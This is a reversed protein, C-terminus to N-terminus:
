AAFSALLSASTEVDAGEPPEPFRALTTELLDRASAADGDGAIVDALSLVCRLEVAVADMSRALSLAEGFDARAGERDGKVLKIKGRANLTYPRFVREQPNFSLAEDAAVLAADLDGTLAIVEALWTLSLTLGVRAGSGGGIGSRLMTLGTTLDGARANLNGVSTRALDSAYSFGNAESLAFLRDVLDRAGGWDGIAWLLLGHFHLAMALDYPNGSSAAHDHAAQIRSRAAAARGSMFAGWSAVGMSISANGPAQRLGPTDMLPGLVAYHSEMGALDGTYFRSQVQANHAFVLRSPNDGDDRVLDLIHDALASAGAYDGATLVARWLRAEERILDPLSGSREALARARTTIAVTEAAAYGLTLQLVRNLGSCLALEWRDRESSLTQSELAKLANRYAGESEGFARGAFAADGAAKWAAIAEETRGAETWHRALVEPDTRAMDPFEAVIAQAVSEHLARRRSKLLSAYAADQLLAHRFIFTKAVGVGRVHVVEADVLHALSATLNEESGPSVASLLGFAFERGIVSAIQATERAPGLRDLRAALSDQLTSPIDRLGVQGDAASMWRVLEEAFLPVGDTRAVVREIDAADIEVNAALAAVLDSTQRRTLRSLTIQAHQDRMPWGPRFEPRAAGLIMLSAAAAQEALLGILELSSPDIWHLDEALIVTPRQSALGIIWQVLVEMLRRRRQEPSAEAPSVAGPASVGLMDAVLGVAEESGSSGGFTQRLDAARAEVSEDGRWGLGTGVLQSAARFPTGAFLAAGSCALWLPADDAIRKQFERLLRSKGMGAEGSVLAVCGEGERVHEWRGSLLRLEDGRGVFSPAATDESLAGGDAPSGLVRFSEGRDGGVGQFGFLTAAGARVAASVLVEGPKAAAGLAAAAGIAEGWFRPPADGDVEVVVVGTHVGVANPGDADRALVLGARIACEAADERANPWGFCITAGGSDFDLQHGGFRDAADAVARHRGSARLRLEEPDLESMPAGEAVAFRCVLVTLRRREGSSGGVPRPSQPPRGAEDIAPKPSLAATVAAAVKAGIEDALGFPDAGDSDWRESWLTSGDSAETLQASIRVKAGARRVAGDVIHTANLAKAADAKQPGRFRSSQARGIVKVAGRSLEHLAGDVVGEAIAQGDDDGAASDFPLVALLAERKLPAPEEEVPGSARGALAAVSELVTSWGSHSAAGDWGVLDACHIQDFPMPLDVADVRAQILKGLTRGRDAESRVWQSGAADESWLVLVAATKSLQEEIVDAYARHSPLADDFWVRFGTKRLGEACARALTAKSRAYSIFVDSM